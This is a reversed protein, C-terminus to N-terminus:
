IEVNIEVGLKFQVTAEDDFITIKEILRRVLQEDYEELEYSQGKLFETMEEIRQRKGEREANEVLTNQKLERLRYIEEAPNLRLKIMVRLIDIEKLLEHSEKGDSHSLTKVWFSTLGSFRSIDVRLKKLWKIREMTITDIYKTKNITLRHQLTNYIGLSLTVLVGGIAIINAWSLSFIIEKEGMRWVRSMGLYGLVGVTAGASDIIVDRIEGSRGPVFTQHFEDSIAYLVCILFAIMIGKSGYVGSRRLANLVLVGLVLYSFFHANKRILHHLRGIDLEAARNPAVRQVTQVVIETVNGSLEKSQVAPKSSFYFILGM